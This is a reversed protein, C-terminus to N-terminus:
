QREKILKRFSEYTGFTWGLMAPMKYEDTVEVNGEAVNYKEWFHGTQEFCNEVLRVYKQAIRLADEEYGYKLLGEVILSHTPPWGNPYGWQYVGDRDNEECCAIGYTTEIRPLLKVAAEAEERTAMGSYLPYLCSANALQIREGTVYNYDFFNGAEDKLYRRMLEGRTEAAAEWQTEEELLGLEAAFYALEKEQRYLLSNLDAPAYNYVEDCMRPSLDWGSEGAAYMGRALEEDTKDPRYGLREELCDAANKIWSEPLEECDYRNLGCPTSRKEMWFGHEKKVTQYVKELWKKDGTVDYLERIMMALFPPQSNYRFGMHSGNLVFGFREQLACLNEINNRVQELEGWLILGKNAFYTDWYYMEQFMDKASPIIYPYPLGFLPPCDEKNERITLPLTKEMYEQITM